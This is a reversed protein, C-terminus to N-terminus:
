TITELTFNEIIEISGEEVREKLYVLLNAIIQTSVATVHAIDLNDEEVDM